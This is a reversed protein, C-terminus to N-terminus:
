EMTGDGLLPKIAGEPHRRERPRMIAFVIAGIEDPM